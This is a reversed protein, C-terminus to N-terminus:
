VAPTVYGGLVYFRQGGVYEPVPYYQAILGLRLPLAGIIQYIDQKIPDLDGSISDSSSSLFIWFNNASQRCPQELLQFLFHYLISSQIIQKILLFLGYVKMIDKYALEGELSLEWNRLFWISQSSISSTYGPSILRTKVM